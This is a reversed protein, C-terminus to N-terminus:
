KISDYTENIIDRKSNDSLEVIPFEKRTSLKFIRKKRTESVKLNTVVERILTKIVTGTEIDKFKNYINLSLERYPNYNFRGLAALMISARKDIAERIAYAQIRLMHNLVGIQEPESIGKFDDLEGSDYINVLDSSYIDNLTFNIINDKTQKIRTRGKSGGEVYKDDEDRKPYATNETDNLYHTFM